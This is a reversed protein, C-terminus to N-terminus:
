SASFGKDIKNEIRALRRSLEEHREGLNKEREDELKDREIFLKDHGNVRGEVRVAWVLAGIASLGLTVFIGPELM